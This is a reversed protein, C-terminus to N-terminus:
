TTDTWGSVIAAMKSQLANLQESLVRMEEALEMIAEVQEYGQIAQGNALKLAQWRLMLQAGPPFVGNVALVLLNYHHGPGRRGSPDNLAGTDAMLDPNVRWSRVTRESVELTDAVEGSLGYPIALEMVQSIRLRALDENTLAKIAAVEKEYEKEYGHPTMM